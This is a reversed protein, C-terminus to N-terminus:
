TAALQTGLMELLSKRPIRKSVDLIEIAIIKGGKTYDIIIGDGVETSIHYNGKQFRINAADAKKDYTIKM